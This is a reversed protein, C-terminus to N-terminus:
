GLEPSNFMKMQDALVAKRMECPRGEKFCSFEGDESGDNSVRLIENPFPSEKHQFRDPLPFVDGFLRATQIHTEPGLNQQNRFLLLGHEDLAESLQASLQAMNGNLLAKPLNFHTEAGFPHLPSLAFALTRPRM